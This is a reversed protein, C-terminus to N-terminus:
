VTLINRCNDHLVCSSVGMALTSTSVPPFPACLEVHSPLVCNLMPLSCVAAQPKCLVPLDGATFMAEVTKRDAADMGAHHFGVGYVLLESFFSLIFSYITYRERVVVLIHKELLGVTLMDWMADLYQAVAVIVRGLWKHGLEVISHIM